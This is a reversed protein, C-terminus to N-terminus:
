HEPLRVTHAWYRHISAVVAKLQHYDPPKSICSHASLEHSRALARESEVSSLIVVPIKGLDPDKKLEALVEHGSMQPMSLDLLIVDPLDSARRSRLTPLVQTSDLLSTFHVVGGVAQFAKHVLAIDEPDDDVQLVHLTPQM